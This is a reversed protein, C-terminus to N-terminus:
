EEEAMMEMEQEAVTGMLEEEMKVMEELTGKNGGEAAKKAKKMQRRSMARGMGMAQMGSVAEASGWKEQARVEDEATWERPLIAFTLYSTHTKLEPETRHILRGEKYLKRSGQVAQIAALRQQKSVYAMKGQGELSIDAIGIETEEGETVHFNRAREEIERLRGVAEEVSAPSANVGRQGEEALGIRERRIELRKSAIEVTEISTYSLAHLTTITRQVQEICPSFTCIRIPSTPSLPNTSVHTANRSQTTYKMHKSDEVMTSNTAVELKTALEIENDNNLPKKFTTDEGDQPISQIQPHGTDEHKSMNSATTSARSLHKLAIWPAPLDLFVADAQVAQVGDDSVSFGDTCVDRHTIEVVGDLGHDRIEAKLKEVRQEHFEFSWVKGKRRQRKVDEGPHGNFVARAAAHTFSGSGAGAEIVVSGPRVRLRQLIYSYDPTYVVQTRHPLSTTWSEPTPPLLYAFGTSAVVAVKQRPNEESGDIASVSDDASEVERKRKTGQLLMPPKTKSKRGRSGTDVTSARVQSGWPVGILTSHPFSGFRTNTVKGESYGENQDDSSRLLIPVQLDRKLHLVALTNADATAGPRLFPSTTTM